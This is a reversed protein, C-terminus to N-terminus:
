PAVVEVKEELVVAAPAPQVMKGSLVLPLISACFGSCNLGPFNSTRSSPRRSRLSPRAKMPFLRSRYAVRNMEDDDDEEEEEDDSVEPPPPRGGNFFARVEDVEFNDWDFLSMTNNNVAQTTSGKIRQHQDALWVKLSDLTLAGNTDGGALADFMADMSKPTFYSGGGPAMSGMASFHHHDKGQSHGPRKAAGNPQNVGFLDV